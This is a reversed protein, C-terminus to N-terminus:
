PLDLRTRANSELLLTPLVGASPFVNGLAWFGSREHLRSDNYVWLALCGHIVAVLFLAQMPLNWLEVSLSKARM